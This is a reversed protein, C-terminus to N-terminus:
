EERVPKKTLQHTIIEELEVHAETEWQVGQQELFVETAIADESVLMQGQRMREGPISETPLPDRFWYQKYSAHLAEKEFTNIIKGNRLVCLYDSLKKIDDIQHSSIIIMREKEDMWSTLLDIVLKKSPIDMHATPEDLLLIDTGKAITLAFLLKQQAGESMREYKQNLPIDMQQVVNQFVQDDWNPYWMSIFTQLQRGTYVNYGIPKQPQYAIYHKWKDGEERTNVGCVHIDGDDQKAIHMLMKCFTSKGAGNTGILATISGPEFNITLPGMHFHDITKEVDSLTIWPQM